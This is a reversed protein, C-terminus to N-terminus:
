FYAAAILGAKKVTLKGQISCILGYFLLAAILMYRMMYFISYASVIFPTEKSLPLMLGVYLISMLLYAMGAFAYLASQIRETRQSTTIPSEASYAATEEGFLLEDLSVGLIESLKKATLLDPYRAGCEWRSVAQRTVYLSNALTQQTMGKEERATKLKEGFEIM